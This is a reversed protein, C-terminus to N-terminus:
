TINSKHLEISLVKFGKPNEFKDVSLIFVHEANRLDENLTNEFPQVTVEDDKWFLIPNQGYCIGVDTQVYKTSNCFVLDSFNAITQGGLVDNKNSKTCFLVLPNPTTESSTINLTNDEGFHKIAFNFLNSQGVGLTLDPFSM